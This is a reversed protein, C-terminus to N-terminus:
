FNAEYISLSPLLSSYIVFSIFFNLSQRFTFSYLWLLISFTILSFSSFLEIIYSFNSYSDLSKLWSLYSNLRTCCYFISNLRLVWFLLIIAEEPLKCSLTSKSSRGCKMSISLFARRCIQSRSLKTGGSPYISLVIM